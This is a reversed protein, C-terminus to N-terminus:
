KWTRVDGLYAVQAGEQGRIYREPMAPSCELAQAANVGSRNLRRLASTSATAASGFVVLREM